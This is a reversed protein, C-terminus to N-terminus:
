PRDMTGRRGPPEKPPRQKLDKGTVFPQRYRRAAKHTQQFKEPHFGLEFEHMYIYLQKRMANTWKGRKVNM